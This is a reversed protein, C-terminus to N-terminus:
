EIEDRVSNFYVCLQQFTLSEPSKEDHIILKESKQYLKALEEARRHLLVEPDFGSLFCLETCELLLDAAKCDSLPTDSMLSGSISQIDQIVDEPNRRLAPIQSLKKMIKAAYKLSPLSKSVDDLSEGITRSGTEMRKLQEWSISAQSAANEEQTRFVHPHRHIMKECIGSIVDTLTFEDFDSGISSHIMVQFLVDGLEDSLHQMDNENIAGVAEWAEEVMYPRLSEHTQVRDWPCGDPSRLRSTVAALDQFTFRSRHLFDMGPVYVSATHDYKKQADLLYLPVPRVSPFDKESPPFFFVTQEDPHLELLRLKVDGALLPSDLETIILPRSPNEDMHLYDTATYLQLGSLTAYSDPVSALCQSARTIGPLIRIKEPALLSRLIRVAGDTEPDMVCFCVPSSAAKEKVYAAMAQHMLDFDDYRNYYDDLSEFFRGQQKLLDAVPHRSTRFILYQNSEWLLHSAQLTLLEPSGPGLPIITLRISMNIGVGTRCRRLYGM